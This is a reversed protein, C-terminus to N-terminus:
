WQQFNEKPQGLRKMEARLRKLRDISAEISDDAPSQGASVAFMRSLLGDNRSALEFLSQARAPWASVNGEQLTEGGGDALVVILDDDERVLEEYIAHEMKRVLAMLQSRSDPSLGAIEPETYRNALDRYQVALGLLDGASGLILNSQRTAEAEGGLREILLGRLQPQHAKSEGSASSAAFVIERRAPVRNLPVSAALEATVHSVPALAKALETRRTDPVIVAHVVVRQGVRRISPAVAEEGLGFRHDFLISRVQLEANDLDPRELDERVKPEATPPTNFAKGVPELRALAMQEAQEGLQYATEQAELRDDDSFEVIKGVVRWDSRRVTVSAERIRSTDATASTTLTILDPSEVITDRKQYQRDRWAAFSDIGLPDEWTMPGFSPAIWQPAPDERFRRNQFGPNQFGRFIERDVTRKGRILRVKQYVVDEKEASVRTVAVRGANRLFEAATLKPPNATSFLFVGILLATSIAAIWTRRFSTHFVLPLWLRRWNPSPPEGGLKTLVRRVFATRPDIEVGPLAVNEHYDMFRRIGTKMDEAAAMCKWCESLHTSTRDMERADLEGSLYLLVVSSPPHDQRRDWVADSM